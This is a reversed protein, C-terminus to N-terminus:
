VHVIGQTIPYQRHHGNQLSVTWQHRADEVLFFQRCSLLDYLGRHMINSIFSLTKFLCYLLIFLCKLFHLLFRLLLVVSISFGQMLSYLYYLVIFLISPHHQHHWLRTEFCYGFLLNFFLFLFQIIDRYGRNLLTFPPSYIFIQLVQVIRIHSWPCVAQLLLQHLSPKNFYQQLIDNLEIQTGAHEPEM